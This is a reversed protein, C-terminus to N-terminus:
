GHTGDRGPEPVIVKAMEKLQKRQETSASLWVQIIDADLMFPDHDLLMGPTTRLHPALRRLWKASLARNSNALDSVMGPTIGVMEALAAGKVSRYRMWAGLHNPGGNKDDDDMNATHSLSWFPEDASKRFEVSAFVNAIQSHKLMSCGM